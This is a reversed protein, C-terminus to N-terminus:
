DPRKIINQIVVTRAKRIQRSCKDANASLTELTESFTEINKKIEDIALKIVDENKLAFDANQLLSELQLELKNTLVRINDLDKLSIYTGLQMSSVVERQGKIAKEYGKFLSNCWKGVSGLPVVLAAALATVVPPAAISAAVVSFILVSVFAALFIANSVRKWSKLSKLKKDLKRKRIQLKKLMTAQQTYVSQFLLYFEETFPDGADKFNRLEQLTKVCTGGELGNQVEEEFYTIVSKVMVQNERARRLCKELSNCFELTQLSNDFYDNVLAFLDKNGWIDRKCDLIVKVVEHNMELLSDTVERLSNFSLSRVEVGTALSSIVRNTHEKISEDFSQLNPDKVCAAEYSSLDAAYVSHTGMKTCDNADSMMKSSNGGM